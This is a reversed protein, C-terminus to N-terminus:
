KFENIEFIQIGGSKMIQLTSLTKPHNKFPILAYRIIKHWFFIIFFVMYHLLYYLM